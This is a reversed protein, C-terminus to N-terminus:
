FEYGSGSRSIILGFFTLITLIFFSTVQSLNRILQRTEKRKETTENNREMKQEVTHYCQVENTEGKVPM